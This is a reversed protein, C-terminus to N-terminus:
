EQAQAPSEPPTLEEVRRRLVANEAALVFNRAELEAATNSAAERQKALAQILPNVLKPDIAPQSM